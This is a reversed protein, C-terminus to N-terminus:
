DIAFIDTERMLLCTKGNNQVEVGGYRAYSVMDGEKVTMAVGDKGPGVALVRGKLPRERKTEPIILGGEMEVEDLPEILVVDRLPRTSSAITTTQKELIHVAKILELVFPDTIPKSFDVLPEFGNVEPGALERLREGITKNLITIAEYM